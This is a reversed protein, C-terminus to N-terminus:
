KQKGITSVGTRYHESRDVIMVAVEGITRSEIDAITEAIRHKEQESFFTDAKMRYQM